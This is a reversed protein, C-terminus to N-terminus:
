IEGMAAASPPADTSIDSVSGGGGSGSNTTASGLPFGKEATQRKAKKRVVVAAVVSILAVGAVAILGGTLAGITPSSSSESTQGDENNKVQILTATSTPGATATNGNALPSPGPTLDDVPSTTVPSSVPSLTPSPSPVGTPVDSPPDSLPLPPSSPSGAPMSMSLSM